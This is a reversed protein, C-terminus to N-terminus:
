ENTSSFSYKTPLEITSVDIEGSMLRPLLYDRLEILSQTSQYNALIQKDIVTVTNEFICITEDSPLKIEISNLADKNICGFVTGTSNYTDLKDRLSLMLYHIFSPCGNNSRISALGRGICCDEPALNIDGVPARVSM